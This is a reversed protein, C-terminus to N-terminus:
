LSEVTKMSIFLKSENGKFSKVGCKRYFEIAAQDKTDTVIATCGILKSVSLAKQFVDAVLLRGYGQGHSQIDIALRGLLVVPMSHKPWRIDITKAEVTAASISHFGIVHDGQLLVYTKSAGIKEYSSANKLLFANLVANGCDFGSTSHINANYKSSALGNSNKKM